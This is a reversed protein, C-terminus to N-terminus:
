AAEIGAAKVVKGWRALESQMFSNFAEPSAQTMSEFGMTIFQQKVEPEAIFKMTAAHLRDVIQRPTRAPAMLAYWNGCTLGTFEQEAVTRLDPLLPNRNERTIEVARLKRDKVFPYLVPFDVAMGDLSGAILGTLGQAAGEYPVYKFEVGATLNFLELIVRTSERTGTTAFNLIGRKSKALAAWENLSNAAVSPNVTFIIPSSAVTTIGAFDSLSNYSLKPYTLQNFVLLTLGGMILTYGDPAAKSDVEAGLIGNAGARNEVVVPTGLAEGLRPGVQWTLLDNAGGPPYGVILNIVKNPYSQASAISTMTTLIVGVFVRIAAQAILSMDSVGRKGNRWIVKKLIREILNNM